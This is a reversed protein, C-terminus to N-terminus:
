SAFLAWSLAAAWRMNKAFIGLAVFHIRKHCTRNPQAWNLKASSSWFLEVLVRLGTVVVEYLSRVTLHKRERKGNEKENEKEGGSAGKRIYRM